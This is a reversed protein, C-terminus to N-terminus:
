RGILCSMSRRVANALAWAGGGVGLRPGLMDGSGRWCPADNSVLWMSQPGMMSAHTTLAGPRRRSWRARMGTLLESKTTIHFDAADAFRDAEAVTKFNVTHRMPKALLKAWAAPPETQGQPMLLHVRIEDRTLFDRLYGDPPQPVTEVDIGLRMPRPAIALPPLPQRGKTSM